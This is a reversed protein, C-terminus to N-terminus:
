KLVIFSIVCLTLLILFKIYNNKRIRKYDDFEIIQCGSYRMYRYAKNIDDIKYMVKNGIYVHYTFGDKILYTYNSM